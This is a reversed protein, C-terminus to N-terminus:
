FLFPRANGEGGHTGNEDFDIRMTGSYGGQLYGVSPLQRREGSASSFSIAISCEGHGRVRATGSAGPALTGVKYQEGCGGVEVDRIAQTGVNRVTVTVAVLPCMGLPITCAGACALFWLISPIVWPRRRAPSRAAPAGPQSLSDGM